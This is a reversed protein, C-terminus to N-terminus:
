GFVRVPLIAMPLGEWQLRNQIAIATESHMFRQYWRERQFVLKSGFVVTRPFKKAVKLCLVSATEVAETGVALEYSAPIGMRRALEVYRTLDDEGHQRLEQLGEVGKFNGSDVVGVSVFVVNKFHGAFLQFIAFLSHVGVGGYNEVLLVATPETTDPEKETPEGYLPLDKLQEDLQRTKARVTRYYHRVWLCLLAVACTVAITLWGGSSFKEYLMIVLISTCLVFGIVHISIKKQWDPHEQRTQWWMKSMALTSLSFTIFVNISYMVVLIHTSGKSYFLALIAGVGFLLVGNQMTLRESLASFRKPFWHDVAMNAMVRPGGIFGTQAAIFLLGTTSLVTLGIMLTGMTTSGLFGGGFADRALVANLTQGPVPRIDSILYSFMLGATLAALSVAMYMMTRKGMEVRPEKLMGVGNSVAEIGTYTGAGMSYAHLFILFMGWSGLAQWGDSFGTVVSVAARPADGTHLGFSALLLLIHSFVFTFFIPSIAIVSEKVGRLNLVILGVIALLEVLFKTGALAPPLVSFLADGGAAISVTITLVYDVTLACGSLLGATPGLLKSAVVYGGGGNPFHEIIRSYVASIISITGVMALVLIPVMYRHEELM